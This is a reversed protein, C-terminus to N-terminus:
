ESRQWCTQLWDILEARTGTLQKFACWCQITALPGELRVTLPNGTEYHCAIGLSRLRHYVEWRRAPNVRVDVTARFAESITAENGM